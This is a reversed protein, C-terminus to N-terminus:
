RIVESYIKSGVSTSCFRKASQWQYPMINQIEMILLCLCDTIEKLKLQQSLDSCRIKINAYFNFLYYASLIGVQLRQEVWNGVLVKNPYKQEIRWGPQSCKDQAM